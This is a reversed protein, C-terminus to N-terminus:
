NCSLLSAVISAAIGFIFGILREKWIERTSSMKNVKDNINLLYEEWIEEKDKPIIITDDSKDEQFVTQERHESTKEKVLHVINQLQSRSIEGVQTIICSRPIIVEEDCLLWASKYIGKITLHLPYSYKNRKYLTSSIPIVKIRNKDIIKTVVVPRKGSVISYGDLNALYICGENYRM